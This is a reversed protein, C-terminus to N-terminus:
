SVGHWRFPKVGRFFPRRVRRLDADGGQGVGTPEDCRDDRLAAGPEFGLHCGIKATEGRHRSAIDIDIDIRGDTPTKDRHAHAVERWRAPLTRVLFQRGDESSRQEDAGSRVRQEIGGCRASPGIADRREDRQDFCERALHGEGSEGIAAFM